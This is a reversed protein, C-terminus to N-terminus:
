APLGTEILAELDIKSYDQIIAPANSLLEPSGVGISKMGAAIAAAIGSPADEFVVCVDPEVGLRRAGLCFIEPDPKARAIDDGTVVADFLRTLNLNELVMRANRSSSCLGIKMGRQRLSELFPLVGPYLDDASITRLLGVYRRNKRDAWALKQEPTAEVKNHRLIVELSALRPIGRCGHNIEESFSWHNEDSLEKWALYHYKDTFVVVGDLDFLTAKTRKAHISSLGPGPLVSPSIM